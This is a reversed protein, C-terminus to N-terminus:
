NWEIPNIKGKWGGGFGRLLPFNTLGEDKLFPWPFVKDSKLNELYLLINEKNNYKEKKTVNEWQFHHIDPNKGFYHQCQNQHM